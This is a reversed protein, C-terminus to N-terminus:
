VKTYEVWVNFPADTRTSYTKTTLTIDSTSSSLRLSSSRVSGVNDYYQGLPMLARANGSYSWCGGCDTITEIISPNSLTTDNQATAAETITGTFVRRFIAKGDVWKKGTDVETTSYTEDISPLVPNILHWANLYFLFLHRGADLMGPTVAVNNYRIPYATTSNVNLTPSAATNINSFSVFLFVGDDRFFNNATATKAATGAATTCTCTCVEGYVPVSRTIMQWYTGDFRFLLPEATSIAGNRLTSGVLRIQAAGTNSVNLTPNTANNNGVTFRVCVISGTQRVFGPINVTKAVTSAQDTCEGYPILDAISVSGGSGGGSGGGSSLGTVVFAEDENEYRVRVTGDDSVFGDANSRLKLDAM